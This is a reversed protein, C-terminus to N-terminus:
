AVLRSLCNLCLQTWTDLVEGSRLLSPVSPFLRIFMTRPTEWCVCEVVNQATPEWIAKSHPGSKLVSAAWGAPYWVDDQLKEAKETLGAEEDIRVASM